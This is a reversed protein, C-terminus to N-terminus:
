NAGIAKALALCSVRAAGARTLYRHAWLLTAGSTVVDDLVIVHKGEVAEARQVYLNEGVNSFRQAASLRNGHSSVAGPRFALVDPIFTFENPPIFTGRRPTPVHATAVQALLSELRPRRGPKFPIVTVVVHRSFGGENKVFQLIANVWADPFVQADKHEHIQRTLVHDRRKRSIEEYEGFLRGLVHIPEYGDGHERPFFHNIKDIRRRRGELQQGAILYELEPLGLGPAALLRSLEDAGEFLADPMRELAWWHEKTRPHWSAQDIFSWCGARHACVVDIKEDGVLAVQNPRAVGTERAAKVIGNPHPKTQEVDEFAVVVDWNFEPYAHGLLTLAYHRPSRTFVGWRMMPFRRRLEALQSATYLLRSPVGSGFATALLRRTYDVSSVGVNERGRFPSLDTTRLLTNDLDFLCLDIGM